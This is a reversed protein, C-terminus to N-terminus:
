HPMDKFNIKPMSRNEQDICLDMFFFNIADRAREFLCFDSNKGRETVFIRWYGDKWDFILEGLGQTPMDGIGYTNASIGIRECEQAVFSFVQKVNEM